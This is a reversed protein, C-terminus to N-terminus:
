CTSLFAVGILLSMRGERLLVKVMRRSIEAKYTFYNRIAEAVLETPDEPPMQALHVTIHFHSAQPFELAWSEIFEEADRDLDKHHFPTPDMSNFLQSLENLRLEIRHVETRAPDMTPRGPIVAANRGDRVFIRLRKASSATSGCLMTTGRDLNPDDIFPSPLRSDISRGDSDNQCLIHDHCTGLVARPTVQSRFIPGALNQFLDRFAPTPRYRDGADRSSHRFIGHHPFPFVYLIGRRCGSCGSTECGIRRALVCSWARECSRCGLGPASVPMEISHSSPTRAPGILWRPMRQSGSAAASARMVFSSKWYGSARAIASSTRICPLNSCDAKTTRRMSSAAFFRSCRPLPRTPGSRSAATCGFICRMTACGSSRCNLSAAQSAMSCCNM